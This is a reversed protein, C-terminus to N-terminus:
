PKSLELFARAGRAWETGPYDRAIASLGLRAKEAWVTEPYDQITEKFYFISADIRKDNRYLVAIRYNKDALMNHVKKAHVRALNVFKGEPHKREYEQFGELADILQKRDYAAGRSHKLLCLPVRYEALSQWISGPHDDLLAQYEVLAVDFKGHEFYYQAVIRQADAAYKGNPSSDKLFRLVETGELAMGFARPIGLFGGGAGKLLTNGLVFLEEEVEQLYKSIPYVQVFKKIREFADDYDGQRHACIARLHSAEELYPRIQPRILLVNLASIALANDGDKLAQRAQGLLAANDMEAPRVPNTTACAAVLFLLLGPVPCLRRNM